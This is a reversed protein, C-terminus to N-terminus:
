LNRVYFTKYCQGRSDVDMKFAEATPMGTETELEITTTTTATTTTTTTTTSTTTTSTPIPTITTSALKADTAALSNVSPRQTADVTLPIWIDGQSLVDREVKVSEKETTTAAAKTTTTTATTTTTTTM